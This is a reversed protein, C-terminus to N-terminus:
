DKTFNMQNIIKKYLIDLFDTFADYDYTSPGIEQVSMLTEDLSQIQKFNPFDEGNALLKNVTIRNYDGLTAENILM